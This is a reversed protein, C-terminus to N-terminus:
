SGISCGTRRVAERMETVVAEITKDTSDIVVAGEPIVLPALQRSRDQRDRERLESQVEALSRHNGRAEVERLRRRARVEESADLYFKVEADPCVVSGTDRGELVVGGGAALERQIPTVKKRVAELATLKSTLESIESTRIADSVDRGDLLVRDGRLEVTIRALLARFAPGEEPGLGAEKVRLAVARYMAGTDVLRFGLCRALERAVTTKGAASPGDITIVPKRKGAPRECVSGASQSSVREGPRSSTM